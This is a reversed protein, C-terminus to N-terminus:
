IVLDDKKSLIKNKEFILTVNVQLLLGISGFDLCVLEGFERVEEPM